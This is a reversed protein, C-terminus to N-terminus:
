LAGTNAKFDPSKSASVQPSITGWDRCVGEDGSLAMEAM